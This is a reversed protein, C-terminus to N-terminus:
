WARARAHRGPRLIAQKRSATLGGCSRYTARALSRDRGSV